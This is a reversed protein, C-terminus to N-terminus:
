PGAAAKSESIELLHGDPDRFFCRVEWEYEVPPTLFEAGRGLLALGIRHGLDGTAGALLPTRRTRVVARLFAVVDGADYLDLLAASDHRRGAQRGGWRNWRATNYREPVAALGAMLAPLDLGDAAKDAGWARCPALLALLGAMSRCLLSRRPLLRPDQDGPLRQGDGGGGEGTAGPVVDAQVSRELEAGEAGGEAPGREIGARPQEEGM